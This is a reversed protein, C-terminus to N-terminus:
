RVTVNDLGARDPGSRFEGRIKMGNLNFLVQQLEVKTAAKGGKKWGSQEDLKISYSTWTTAPNCSTNYTLTIKGDTLVVDETTAGQGDADAQILDFSLTKGYGRRSEHVLSDSALFFWVDASNDIGYVYGGPNGGTASYGGKAASNVSWGQSDQDFGNMLPLPRIFTSFDQCSVHLLPLLSSVLAVRFRAKKPLHKFM